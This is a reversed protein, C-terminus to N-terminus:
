INGESQNESGNDVESESVGSFCFIFTIKLDPFDFEQPAVDWNVYLTM